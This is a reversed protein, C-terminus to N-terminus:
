KAHNNKYRYLMKAIPKLMAEPLLQPFVQELIVPSTVLTINHSLQNISM